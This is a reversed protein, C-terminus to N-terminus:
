AWRLLFASAMAEDKFTFYYVTPYNKRDSGCDWDHRYDWGQEEMWYIIAPDPHLQEFGTEYYLWDATQDPTLDFKIM